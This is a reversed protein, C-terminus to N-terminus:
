PQRARPRRGPLHHRRAHRRRWRRERELVCEMARQCAHSCFRQLPSRPRRVFCEYCGPRDCCGDFFNGLSSGRLRRFPRKRQHKGSRSVSGTAGAKGTGSKSARGRPGTPRNPNGSRGSGRRRGADNPQLVAAARTGPSLPPHLGEAFVAAGQPRVAVPSGATEAALCLM